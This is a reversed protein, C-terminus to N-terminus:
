GATHLTSFGSVYEPRVGAAPEATSSGQVGAQRARRWLRRVDGVDAQCAHAYAEAVRLRPVRNGQAARSLASHAHGTLKAM